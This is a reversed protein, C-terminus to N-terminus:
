KISYQKLGSLYTVADPGTNFLLDIISLDPIYGQKVEFAQIYRPLEYHIKQQIKIKPGFCNRLDVYGPKTEFTNTYEINLAKIQLANLLILLLEHNLDILRDTRKFYIPKILHSYFEFFPSNNYATVISRWHSLQWNISNDILIDCTKTHNGNVRNVPVTLNLIGSSTSISCRNRFTQKPYTEQIEIEIRGSQLATAMWSIPPLYATSLLVPNMSQIQTVFISFLLPAALRAAGKSNYLM